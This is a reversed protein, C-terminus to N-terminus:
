RYLKSRDVAMEGALIIVEIHRSQPTAARGGRHRDFRRRLALRLVFYTGIVAAVMAVITLTVSSGQAGHLYPSAPNGAQDVTLNVTSGSPTGPPVSISGTRPAGRWTWRADVKLTSYTGLGTSIPTSPRNATSTVAQVTSTAPRDPTSAGQTLLAVAPIMLLSLLVAAVALSRMVRKEAIDIPRTLPNHDRPNHDRYEGSRM